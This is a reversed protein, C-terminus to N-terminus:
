PHKGKPLTPYVACGFAKVYELNPVQETYVEYLKKLTGLRGSGFPLAITSVRNKIWIAHEAALCWLDILLKSDFLVLRIKYDM